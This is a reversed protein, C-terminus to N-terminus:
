TNPQELLKALFDLLAGPSSINFAAATHDPRVKITVAQPSATFMSEDTVDDGAIIIFDHKARVCQRIAAAKSTGSKRIELVKSGPLFTLNKNALKTRLEQIAREAAPGPSQRYHVCISTEKEELFSGPLTATTIVAQDRVAAKWSGPTPATARWQSGPLRLFQGHEASLIVPLGGFWEQLVNKGRGSVIAVTNAPDNTLASLLRLLKSTPVALEPTPAFDVLTGDYDLCFLRSRAYFYNHRLHDAIENTLPVAM